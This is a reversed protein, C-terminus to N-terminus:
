ITPSLPPEAQRQSFAILPPAPTDPLSPMFRKPMSLPPLYIPISQHLHRTLPTVIEATDLGPYDEWAVVDFDDSIVAALRPSQPRAEGLRFELSYRGEERISLDDFVFVSMKEGQLNTTQYPTCVLRGILPSLHDPSVDILQGPEFDKPSSADPHTSLSIESIPSTGSDEPHRRLLACSCFLYPLEVDAIAGNKDKAILQIVSAPVVPLRGMAQLELGAAAGVSPQQLIVLSFTYSEGAPHFGSRTTMGIETNGNDTSLMAPLLMSITRTTATAVAVREVREALDSPLIKEGGTAISARTFVADSSVDM